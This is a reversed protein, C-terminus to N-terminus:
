AMFDFTIPWTVQYNDLALWQRGEVGLIILRFYGSKSAVATIKNQLIICM